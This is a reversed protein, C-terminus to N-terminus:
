NKERKPQFERAAGSPSTCSLLHNSFRHLWLFNQQFDTSLLLRNSTQDLKIGHIIWSSFDRGVLESSCPPRPRDAGFTSFSLVKGELWKYKDLCYDTARNTSQSILKSMPVDARRSSTMRLDSQENEQRLWRSLPRRSSFTQIFVSQTSNCISENTPLTPCREIRWQTQATNRYSRCWLACWRVAVRCKSTSKNAISIRIQSPKRTSNARDCEPKCPSDSSSYFSEPLVRHDFPRDLNQM